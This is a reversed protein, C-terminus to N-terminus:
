VLRGNLKGIADDRLSLAHILFVPGRADFVFCVHQPPVAVVQGNEPFLTLLEQGVRFLM